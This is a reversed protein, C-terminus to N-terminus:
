TDPQLAAIEARVFDMPQPVFVVHDARTGVLIKQCIWLPQIEPYERSDHVQEFSIKLRMMARAHAASRAFTDFPDLPGTFRLNSRSKKKSIQPYLMVYM